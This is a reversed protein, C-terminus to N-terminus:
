TKLKILRINFIQGCRERKELLTLPLSGKVLLPGSNKIEQDYKASWLVYGKNASEGMKMIRCDALSM